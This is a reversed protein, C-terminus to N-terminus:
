RIRQRKCQDLGASLKNRDDRCTNLAARLDNGNDRCQKLHGPCSSDCNRLAAECTKLRGDCNKVSGECTKLHGPCSKDCNKLGTECTKLRGDCNKVSGECTKLRGPCSKDCNKLGAECTKLSKRCSDLNEPCNTNAPKSNQCNQLEKKCEAADVAVFSVSRAQTEILQSDCRGSGGGSSSLPQWVANVCNAKSSCKKACDAPSAEYTTDPAIVDNCHVRFERGQFLLVKNQSSSAGTCCSDYTGTVNCQATVLVSLYALSALSFILHSRFM